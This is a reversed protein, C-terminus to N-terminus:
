AISPAHWNASRTARLLCRGYHELRGRRGTGASDALRQVPRTVRATAWWSLAVGLLIGAAAVIIGTRLLSNELEVLDRRSSSILLVGLTRNDLGPLPVAHVSEAAAGSGVIRSHERRESQVQEIM